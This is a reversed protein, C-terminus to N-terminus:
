AKSSYDDSVQNTKSVVKFHQVFIDVLKPTM